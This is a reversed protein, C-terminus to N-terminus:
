WVHPVAMLAPEDCTSGLKKAFNKAANVRSEDQIFEDITEICGGDCRFLSIFCRRDEFECDYYPNAYVITLGQPLPIKAADWCYGVGCTCQSGDVDVEGDVVTYEGDCTGVQNDILFSDLTCCDIEWGFILKADTNVGM